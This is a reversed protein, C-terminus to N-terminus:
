VLCGCATASRFQIQAINFIEILPKNLADAMSWETLDIAVQNLFTVRGKADTTIVADGISALTVQARERESYLREALLEQQQQSEQLKGQMDSLWGLVNNNPLTLDLSTTKEFDGQAIKDIKNKVAAVSSGLTLRLAQYTRWLSVMLAVILLVMILRFLLAVNAADMVAADNRRSALHEFEALPRMIAAKAQHYQPSYLLLRARQQREETAAAADSYESLRMAELEIKTLTDSNAKAQALLAFEPPTFGAERMLELLPKRLASRATPRVDDEMVLDWYIGQYDLPRALVGNRIDLIEQYHAKYIPKGTVVYTRVMRTLDDSSQRLEDALLVAQLRLENARDIRKEAAVYLAFNSVSILFLVVLWFLQRSFASVKLKAFFNAFM